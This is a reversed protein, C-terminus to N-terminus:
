MSSVQSISERFSSETQDDRHQKDSTINLGQETFFKLHVARDVKLKAIIEEPVQLTTSKIAYTNLTGYGKVLTRKPPDWDFDKGNKSNKLLDFTPASIQVRDIPATTEMRSALNVSPGFCDFHPARGVDVVGAIANGCHIGMQMSVMDLRGLDRGAAELFCETREPFHVYDAGMLEQVVVAFSVMRVVQHDLVPEKEAQAELEAAAEPDEKAIRRRHEADRKKVLDELGAVCFFADGITKIKHVSYFEAVADQLMFVYGLLRVMEVTSMNRVLDGCSVIDSFLFTLMPHQDVILKEGTLIRKSIFSPMVDKVLESFQIKENEIQTKYEVYDSEIRALVRSMLVYMAGATAVVLVVGIGSM